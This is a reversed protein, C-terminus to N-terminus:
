TPTDRTHKKTHTTGMVGRNGLVVRWHPVPVQNLQNMTPGALEEVAVVHSRGEAGGELFHGAVDVVRGLENWVKLPSHYTLLTMHSFQLTM